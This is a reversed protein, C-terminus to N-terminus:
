GDFTVVPPMDDWLNIGTAAALIGLFGTIVEPHATSLIEVLDKWGQTKAQDFCVKLVEIPPLEM